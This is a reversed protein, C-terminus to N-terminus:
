EDSGSASWPRAGRVDQAWATQWGTESRYLEVSGGRAFQEGTLLFKGACAASPAVGTARIMVVDAGRCLEDLEKGEPTRRIWWLM